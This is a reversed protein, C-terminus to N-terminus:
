KSQSQGNRDRQRSQKGNMPSVAVAQLYVKHALTTSNAAKFPSRAQDGVQQSVKELNAGLGELQDPTGQLVKRHPHLPSVSEMNATKLKFNNMIIDGSRVNDFPEFPENSESSMARTRAEKNVYMRHQRRKAQAELFAAQDYYKKKDFIEVSTSSIAGAGGHRFLNRM